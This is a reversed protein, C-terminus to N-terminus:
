LSTICINRSLNVTYDADPKSYYVTTEVYTYILPITVEVQLQGNRAPWISRPPGNDGEVLSYFVRKLSASYRNM